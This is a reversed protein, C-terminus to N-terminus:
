QVFKTIDTGPRFFFGQELAPKSYHEILENIVNASLTGKVGFIKATTIETITYGNVIQGIKLASM